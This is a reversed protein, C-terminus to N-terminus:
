KPNDPTQLAEAIRNCLPGYTRELTEVGEHSVVANQEALAQVVYAQAEDDGLKLVSAQFLYEDKLATLGAVLDAPITKQGDLGARVYAFALCTGLNNMQAKDDARVPTSVAAALLFLLGFKM